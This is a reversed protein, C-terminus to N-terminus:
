HDANIFIKDVTCTNWVAVVASSGSLSWRSIQILWTCLRVAEHMAGRTMPATFPVLLLFGIM